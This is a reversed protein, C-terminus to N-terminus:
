LRSTFFRYPLYSAHEAFNTQTILLYSYYSKIYQFSLKHYLYDRFVIYIEGLFLPQPVFQSQATIINSAECM